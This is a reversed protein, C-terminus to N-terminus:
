FIVNSLRAQSFGDLIGPKLLLWVKRQWNQGATYNLKELPVPAQGELVIGPSCKVSPSKAAIFLDASQFSVSDNLHM